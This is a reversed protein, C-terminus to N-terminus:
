GGQKELILAALKQDGLELLEVPTYRFGSLVMGEGVAWNRQDDSFARVGGAVSSLIEPTPTSPEAPARAATSGPTSPRSPGHSALQKIQALGVALRDGGHQGGLEPVAEALATL